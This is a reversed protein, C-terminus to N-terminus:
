LLARSFSEHKLLVEQARYRIRLRPGRYRPNVAETPAVSTAADDVDMAAAADPAATETSAPPPDAGSREAVAGPDHVDEPPFPEGTAKQPEIQAERQLMDAESATNANEM